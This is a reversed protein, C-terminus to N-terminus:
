NNILKIATGIVVISGTSSSTTIKIGIVGDANKDRAEKCMKRIANHVDNKSFIKFLSKGVVIGITEYKKNPLTDCSSVIFEDNEIM